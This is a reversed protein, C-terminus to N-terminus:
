SKLAETWREGDVQADHPKANPICVNQIDDTASPSEEATLGNKGESMATRRAM